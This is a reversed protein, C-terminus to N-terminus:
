QINLKKHLYIIKADEPLNREFKNPVCNVINSLPTDGLFAFKLSPAVGLCSNAATIYSVLTKPKLPGRFIVTKSGPITSSSRTAM